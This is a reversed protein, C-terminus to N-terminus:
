PSRIKRIVTVCPRSSRRSSGSEPCATSSRWIPRRWWGSARRSSASRTASSASSKTGCKPSRAGGACTRSIPTSRSRPFAGSAAVVAGLEDLHALVCEAVVPDAVAEHIYKHGRHFGFYGCAAHGGNHIFLKRELRASQNDVLELASLAAPKPGRFAEARATWENYDEAVIVLPDPEPRPVVRSIMCDPFGVHEECWALGSGALLQRVHKGLATSSDMMNECAICNLPGTRGDDACASIGLAITQAVDSLNQDFVATLVLAADRIEEAIAARDLSHHVRYGSVVIEQFREGYLKVTYRGQGSSPTSWSRSRISSCSKSAPRGPWCGSTGAARRGPESFWSRRPWRAIGDTPSRVTTITKSECSTTWSRAHESGVAARGRRGDRPTKAGAQERGGRGSPPDLTEMVGAENEWEMQLVGSDVYIHEHKRVHYQLSSRTGAKIEIIKFAYKDTHAVWIERGWPKEVIKIDPDHNM